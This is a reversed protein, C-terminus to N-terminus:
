LNWKKMFLLKNTEISRGYDLNSSKFTQSGFHYIFVAYDIVCKYGAQTTRLCYDDDEFNGMGFVEDLIGVKELLESKLLVCFFVIRSFETPFKNCCQMHRKAFSQLAEGTTFPVCNIMQPGSVYNSMPGVIGNKPDMKMVSVMHTLWLDTVIIDSNLIAFYPTVVCELAANVAAPFGLNHTNEIVLLRKDERLMEVTGDTSNNDVVILKFPVHTHAFISKIALRTYIKTNYTPMILTVMPRQPTQKMKHVTFVWQQPNEALPHATIGTIKFDHATLFTSFSTKTFFRLHSIDLIGAKAYRFLGKQLDSIILDNAINPVSIIITGHEELLATEQLFVGWPNQLHELIDAFILCDYKKGYKPKRPNDLNAAYVNDLNKAAELLAGEDVEVGNVVCEQREKIAKGLRGTGCGVDLIRRATIPVRSLIEPRLLDHYNHVFNTKEM